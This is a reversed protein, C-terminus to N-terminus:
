FLEIYGAYRLNSWFINSFAGESCYLAVWIHIYLDQADDLYSLLEPEGAIREALLDITTPFTEAKYSQMDLNDSDTEIILKAYGAPEEVVRKISLSMSPLNELSIDMEPAKRFEFANMGSESIAFTGVVLGNTFVDPKHLSFVNNKGADDTYLYFGPASNYDPSWLLGNGAGGKFNTNFSSAVTGLQTVGDVIYTSPNESLTYFFKLGPGDVVGKDSIKTLASDTLNIELSIQNTLTDSQASTIFESDDLYFYTPIGCSSIIFLSALVLVILKTGKSQCRKM